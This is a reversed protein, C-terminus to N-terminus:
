KALQMIKGAERELAVRQDQYQIGRAYATVAVTADWLTEIPRQEDSMHAAQIAATQQKTFRNALFATVKEKDGLKSSRAVAIADTVSAASGNAYATIAPAAQEIWRDPASSTHRITVQKFDQAGWVIRNACIYDFLFTAIGFTASGVESNWVFFGRAMSGPEGKRRNPVEIRHTEDALFIWIDRDSNYLTTNDKTVTVAKGFEGPVRFDGTLGDGFRNVLAHTITQNWIRGYNPGTAARLEAPGGNKYLLIGVDEPGRSVHLGYNICDAAMPGPLTRLYGAPAEARAALQGFSWHTLNVAGGNPGVCQLSEVDEDVPVVTIGRSSMVKSKSADRDAVVSAHLETLSVFRQDAPRSSWQRSAQMLEM